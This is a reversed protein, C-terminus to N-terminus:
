ETSAKDQPSNAHKRLEDSVLRDLIEVMPRGTLAYLMRLNKVTGDWIKITTTKMTTNYRSLHTNDFGIKPWTKILKQLNRPLM